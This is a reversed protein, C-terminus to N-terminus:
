KSVFWKEKIRLWDIRGKPSQFWDDIDQKVASQSKSTLISRFFDKKYGKVIFLQSAIASSESQAYIYTQYNVIGIDARKKILMIPVLTETKVDVRSIKNQQFSEELNSYYYGRVGVVTKGFFSTADNYQISPDNSIYLETDIILNNIWEYKRRELDDVWLPNTWLLAGHNAVRDLARKKPLYVLRYLYKTSFQNLLKVLEYNLGVARDKNVIYPPKDLYTYLDVPQKSFSTASFCLALVSILYSLKIFMLFPLGKLLILIRRTISSCLINDCYSQINKSCNFHYSNNSKM